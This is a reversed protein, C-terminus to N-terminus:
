KRWGNDILLKQLKHRSRFARVKVNALSWGLIDAAERGTMGELHVLELVIRDEASLKNLAWELIEQAERQRVFARWDANSKDAIARKLGRHHEDDLSSGHLQATRYHQRWFDYCSRVAITTFWKKLSAATKLKSLSRYARVFVEQVVDEVRDMPVHRQVIALVHAGYRDMLGAFADGDGDLTRRVMEEDTASETIKAKM